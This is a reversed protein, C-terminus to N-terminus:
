ATQTKEDYRTVFITGRVSATATPTKVSFGSGIVEQPKIHSQIEGMKLLVEIKFRTDNKLLGGMRIRTLQNIVVTSGDPFQLIAESDPGTHIEDEAGLRMGESAEQWDAGPQLFNADGTLKLLTVPGKTALRPAAASVKELYVTVAFSGRYLQD